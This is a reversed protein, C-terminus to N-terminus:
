ATLIRCLDDIKGSERAILSIAEQVLKSLNEQTVDDMDDSALLLETQLRVFRDGLLHGLQYDVVDSQGDMFVDIIPVAWRTLGWGKAKLPRTRQGTGLSVVMLDSGWLKCAEAAASVAPNNAAVGGDVLLMNKGSLTHEVPEFYTPAASTARSALTMPMDAMDSRWSKFFVPERSILDYSCAMIPVPSDLLRRDGFYKNLVEELGAHGYKAGSLGWATGIRRFFSKSFITKGNELYLDVVEEASHGSCLCMGLIGGTSTGSVLDFMEATRRSTRKEIEALVMAPIIGMIGGGDIALVRKV